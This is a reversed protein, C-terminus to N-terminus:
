ASEGEVPVWPGAKRRSMDAEGEDRREVYYGNGLDDGREWGDVYARKKGYEKDTTAAELRDALEELLEANWNSGVTTAYERAEKILEKSSLEGAKVFDNM